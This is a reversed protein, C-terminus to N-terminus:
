VNIFFILLSKWYIKALGIKLIYIELINRVYVCHGFLILVENTKFQLM